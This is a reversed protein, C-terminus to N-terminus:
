SSHLLKEVLEKPPKKGACLCPLFDSVFDGLSLDPNESFAKLALYNIRNAEDWFEGYMLLGELGTSRAMQSAKKIQTVYNESEDRLFSSGYPCFGLNRKAPSIAERYRTEDLALCPFEACIRTRDITWVCMAYDPITQVFKPPSAMMERTFSRYTFYLLWADEACDHAARVVPPYVGAMDEFSIRREREGFRRCEECQCVGYDGSEFEVGGIKFNEFLWHVGDVQWQINEEKSPCAISRIGAGAKTRAFVPQGNGDVACLEPHKRLWTELNFPHEGEYYIGGYSNIGVGPLIRIGRDQAYECLKQAYEIGGHSDRLFGTNRHREFRARLRFGSNETIELSLNLFGRIRQGM